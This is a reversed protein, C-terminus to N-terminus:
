NKKMTVQRMSSNKRAIYIRKPLHSTSAADTFLSKTLSRYFDNVLPSITQNSLSIRSAFFLEPYASVNKLTVIRERPIGFLALSAYVFEPLNSNILIKLCPDEDLLPKFLVIKPFCEVMWHYYNRQIASSLLVVRETSFHFNVLNTKLRKKGHLVDVLEDYSKHEFYRESRFSKIGILSARPIEGAFNSIFLKESFVLAGPLRYITLVDTSVNRERVLTKQYKKRSAFKSYQEHWHKRVAEYEPIRHDFSINLSTNYKIEFNPSFKDYETLNTVKENDKVVLDFEIKNDM